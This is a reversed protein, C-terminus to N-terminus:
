CEHYTNSVLKTQRAREHAVHARSRAPASAAGSDVARMQDHRGIEQNAHRAQERGDASAQPRSVYLHEDDYLRQGERGVNPRRGDVKHQRPARTLARLGNETERKARVNTGRAGDRESPYPECLGYGAQGLMAQGLRTMDVLATQAAFMSRRDEALLALGPTGACPRQTTMKSSRQEFCIKRRRARKAKPSPDQNM